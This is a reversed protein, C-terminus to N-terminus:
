FPSIFNEIEDVAPRRYALLYNQLKPSINEKNSITSIGKKIFYM